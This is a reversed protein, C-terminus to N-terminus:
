SWAVMNQWLHSMVPGDLSELPRQKRIHRIVQIKAPIIDLQESTVAGIDTLPNGDHACILDSEPGRLHYQDTALEEPAATGELFVEVRTHPPSYCPSLQLGDAYGKPPLCDQHPQCYTM